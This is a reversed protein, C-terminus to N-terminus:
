QWDGSVVFAAWLRPPLRGSTARRPAPEDGVDLGRLKGPELRDHLLALQAQRFAALPPLQKQWLNQYFETMLLRTAEDDVKWLSSVVSRAGAVQFARQLGLAGEGGAIQGLGTECASLVVLPAASLDLDAVEAATVIGDDRDPAVPQNVGALVIGSLLDPNWGSAQQSSEGELALVNAGALQNPKFRAPAFFGHTALHLFRAQPAQRRFAEETASGQELLTMSGSQFRSQYAKQIAAVEAQTGPLPGFDSLRGGRPAALSKSGAALGPKGGFDVNGILLMAPSKSQSASKAHSATAPQAVLHSGLLQPVPVVALAVDEILYSDPEKGPLAALPVRSLAGDPSVLVTEIGALDEVLPEWVRKRLLRPADQGDGSAHSLWVNRCDDILADLGDAPGLDRQAIPYGRRIVFAALRRERALAGKSGPPMTLRTYELVDVLATKEPLLQKLQEVSLNEAHLERGFQRHERAIQRELEDKHLALKAMQTQRPSADTGQEGDFTLRAMKRNTDDLDKFLPSLKPNASSDAAWQSEHLRQRRASVSGKWKLVYAYVDEAPLAARSSLSLYQDLYGRVMTALLLQQRESQIHSALQLNAMALRLVEGLQRTAEASQGRRDALLALNALSLITTPHQQGLVAQRIRLAETWRQQVGQFDGQRFNITGLNNLATAYGPGQQNEARRIQVVRQLLWSAQELHGQGAFVAALNNLGTVYNLPDEEAEPRSALWLTQRLLSSAQTSDHQAECLLALNNVYKALERLDPLQPARANVFKQEPERMALTMNFEGMLSEYRGGRELPDRGDANSDAENQPVHMNVVQRLLPVARDVDGLAAYLVALNNLIAAYDDGEAMGLRQLTARAQELLPEAQVYNAVGYFTLGLNNACRATEPDDTGLVRQCIALEKVFLQRARDFDGALRCTQALQALAAITDDDDNGLLERNIQYSAELESMKAFQARYAGALSREKLNRRQEDSLRALQQCHQIRRQAAETRWHRRGFHLDQIEVRQKWYDEAAAFDGKSECAEALRAFDAAIRNLRTHYVPHDRGLVRGTIEAAHLSLAQSKKEDCLTWYAAAKGDLCNAYYLHNEGLADKLAFLARDSVRIVEGAQKADQDAGLRLDNDKNPRQAAMEMVALLRERDDASLRQIDALEDAHYRADLAQWSAAGYVKARVTAVQQWYNRSQVFEKQEYALEAMRQWSLAIEEHFEGYVEREIALMAELSRQEAEADGDSRQARQLAEWQDRDNLRRQQAPTLNSPRQFPRAVSDAYATIMADHAALYAPHNEGQAQRRVVLAQVYSNQEARYDQQLRQGRALLEWAEATAPTWEGWTTRRLQLAQAAAEAVKKGSEALEAATPRRLDGEARKAPELLQRAHAAWRDGMSLQERQAATLTPLLQTRYLGWKADNVRPHKEGDVLKRLDLIEQWVKQAAALDPASPQAAPLKQLVFLLEKRAETTQSHASGWLSSRVQVLERFANAAQEHKNQFECVNGLDALAAAFTPHTTGLLSRLRKVVGTLLEESEAYDSRFSLLVALQKRARAADFSDAGLLEEIKRVAPRALDIAARVQEKDSISKETLPRLDNKAQQLTTRAAPDLAALKRALELALRADVTKWHEPGLVATRVALTEERLPRAADFKAQQELNEARQQLSTILLEAKYQTDEHGAGSSQATIKYAQRLDDTAAQVKGQGARALGRRMLSTAYSPHERGYIRECGAVLQDAQRAAEDRQGQGILIDVLWMRAVQTQEDDDTLLTTRTKLVEKALPLAKDSHQEQVLKAIQQAQADAAALSARQDANLKSLRRTHELKLRADITRRGQEGYVRAVTQLADERHKIAAAFDGVLARQDAQRGLVWALEILSSHTDSDHEGYADHRIRAAEELAPVAQDFHGVEALIVGLNHLGLAAQPHAPGYEKRWVVLAQRLLAEARDHQGLNSLVLGLLNASSAAPLSDPGLVERRLKLAEEGTALAAQNDNKDYSRSCQRHLARAKSLQKLQEAKLKELPELTRLAVRANTVRWDNAAYLKEIAELSQQRVKLAQVVEDADELQDAWASLDQSLAALSARTNAHEPDLLERRLEWAQRHAGAAKEPSGLESQVNGIAHLCTAIQPHKDGLARRYVEVAQEYATQADAPRGLEANAQGLIWFPQGCAALSDGLIKRRAEAARRLPALAPEYKRDNYLLMAQQWDRDAQRLDNRQAADLKAIREVLKLVDKSSRTRWHEEGFQRSHREVLQRATKEADASQGALAYLSALWERSGDADEHEDGLVKREIELMKLATAIAEDLRGFAAHQRTERDYQNREDLAAPRAAKSAASDPATVAAPPSPAEQAAAPLACGIV